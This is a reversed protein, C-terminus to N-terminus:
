SKQHNKFCSKALITCKESFTKEPIEFYGLPWTNHTCNKSKRKRESKKETSKKTEKENFVPM